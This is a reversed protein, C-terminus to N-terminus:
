LRWEEHLEMFVRHLRRREAETPTTDRFVFIELDHFFDPVDRWRTRSGSVSGGYLLLFSGLKRRVLKKMERKNM